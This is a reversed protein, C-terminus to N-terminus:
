ATATSVPVDAAPSTKKAKGKSKATGNSKAAKSAAGKPPRLELRKLNIDHRIDKNRAGADIADRYTMGNKIADWTKFGHTGERRPNDKILKHLTHDLLATERKGNSNTSKAAAKKGKAAKANAQKTKKAAMVKNEKKTTTAARSLQDMALKLELCRGEAIERNAFKAIQNTSGSYENYWEVLERDTAKQPFTVNTLDGPLKYRGSSDVYKIAM